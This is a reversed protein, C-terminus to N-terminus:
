LHTERVVIQQDAGSYGDESGWGYKEQYSGYKGGTNIIIKSSRSGSSYGYGSSDSSGYYSGGYPLVDVIVDNSKQGGAYFSLTHRGVADAEFFLRTYDPYFYYQNVSQYGDPYIEVMTVTGGYSYALMRFTAGMPCKIYQTWSSSGQIWLSNAPISRPDYPRSQGGVVLSEPESGSVMYQIPGAQAQSGQDFSYYEQYQSLDGSSAPDSGSVQYAVDPMDTGSAICIAGLLILAPIIKFLIAM